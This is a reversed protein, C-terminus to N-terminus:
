QRPTIDDLQEIFSEPRPETPGTNIGVDGLMTQVWTACDLAPGNGFDNAYIGYDPPLTAAALMRQQLALSQPGTIPVRVLKKVQGGQQKEIKGPVKQTYAQNSIIGSLFNLTSNASLGVMPGGGIGMAIHGAQNAPTNIVWEVDATTKIQYSASTTDTGNTTGTLSITNNKSDIQVNTLGGNVWYGGSKTCGGASITQSMHDYGGSSNLYACDLGLPDVFSLPNNQVYAYRNLSQPDGLDAAMMGAPDPSLWRGMSSAYYRYKFYDNGSESDREKGTSRSRPFRITSVCVASITM